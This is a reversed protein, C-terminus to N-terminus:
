KTVKYTKREYYRRGIILEGKGSKTAAITYEQIRLIGAYDELFIAGLMEGADATKTHISLSGTTAM